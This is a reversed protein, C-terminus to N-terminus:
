QYVSFYSYIITDLLIHVTDLLVWPPTKLHEVVGNVRAAFLPAGDEGQMISGTVRLTINYTL